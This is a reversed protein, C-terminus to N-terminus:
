NVKLKSLKKILFKQKIYKLPQHVFFGHRRYKDEFLLNQIKLSQKIILEDKLSNIVEKNHESLPTFSTSYDIHQAGSHKGGSIGIHQALSNKAALIRVNNKILTESLRFDGMEPNNIDVFMAACKKNMVMAAHGADLKLDFIKGHKITYHVDSNYLTVFGDTFKFNEKIFDLADPRLLLDSDCLFVVDNDSKLFDSMMQFYNHSTQRSRVNRRFIQKSVSAFKEKLYTEDFDTSADDYIRVDANEIGRCESLSRSLTEIHHKRNYTPVVIMIKM